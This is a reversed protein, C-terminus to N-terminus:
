AFATLYKCWWHIELRNDYEDISPYDADRLLSIVADVRFSVIIVKLYKM